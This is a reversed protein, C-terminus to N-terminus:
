DNEKGAVAVLHASVAQLAPESEIKRAMELLLERQEAAAWWDNFDPLLWGPGEVGFLGALTFGAAMVETRLEEPLHFFTAMFFEPKGIPNRHQGNALDQRVIGAFRPDKLHGSRLGDFMSAFRSIAMALLVGGPKLVRRAERLARLRDDRGTLHYLPGFLLIADAKDDEWPLQRADGVRASALPAAPQAASMEQALRVHLASLDLLHVEYGQRALWGAHDGPGGGLDLVLAPPSPLFRRLLERTRERDLRGVGRQLRRAEFGPAYYESIEEPTPSQNERPGTM